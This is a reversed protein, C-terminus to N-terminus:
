FCVGLEHVAQKAVVLQQTLREEETIDTSMLPSIEEYSLHVRHQGRTGLWNRM